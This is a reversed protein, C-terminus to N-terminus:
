LYFDYDCDLNCRMFIIIATDMSYGLNELDFVQIPGLIINPLSM